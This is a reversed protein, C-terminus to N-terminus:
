LYGDQLVESNNANIYFTLCHSFSILMSALVKRKMEIFNTHIYIYNHM